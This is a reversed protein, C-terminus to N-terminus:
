RLTDATAGPIGAHRRGIRRRYRTRQRAQEFVAVAAVRAEQSEMELVNAAMANMTSMM